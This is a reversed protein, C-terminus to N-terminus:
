RATGTKRAAVPMAKSQLHSNEAAVAIELARLGDEGTVRPPRGHLISDVFDQIEALYADAFTSLFYDAVPRNSGQSTLVTMPTRHVSGIFISGKSGVVETRVDYGYSAQANSEINGIAGKSFKLNVVSAVVDGFQEIEPRIASTTHAHVETVEDRMMWRALDFDHITNTYFLMGNINAQYYSLPPGDKDRGLSKFIVPVGIEGTEIRKMASAYAPDYRRMFGVQFYVGYKSVAALLEHAETLNLAPPKECLIHKGAAAATKVAPAHFKDPTAVVLADIGKCELMSELNGFANEIELEKAAQRAKEEAVDAVAVLQASPVLHRLNEAHRRGMEGVGLVGVGLKKM